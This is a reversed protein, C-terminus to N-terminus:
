MSDEHDFPCVFMNRNSIKCPIFLVAAVRVEILGDFNIFIQENKTLAEVSEFISVENGIAPIERRM